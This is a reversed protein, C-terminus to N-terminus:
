VFPAAINGQPAGGAEETRGYLPIPRLVPTDHGVVPFFEDQSRATAIGPKFTLRNLKGRRRHDPASSHENGQIRKPPSVADGQFPIPIVGSHPDSAFSAPSYDGYVTTGGAPNVAPLGAPCLMSVSVRRRSQTLVLLLTRRRNDDDLRFRVLIVLSFALILSLNRIRIAVSASGLSM